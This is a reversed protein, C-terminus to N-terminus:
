TAYPTPWPRRRSAPSDARCTNPSCARNSRPKGGGRRAPPRPQPWSTTRSKLAEGMSRLRATLQEQTDVFNRNVSYLDAYSRRLRRKQRLVITLFVATVVAVVAVATMATRQQRITQLRQQERAKLDSIERTTKGVEYTFLSNRAADFKRTDYISDMIDLYRSKYMNSKVVDGKNEYFESLNKLTTAFTHQLNYRRAAADCLNMYKLASDPMGLKNYASYIEQYAFCEYKHEIRKGVAYRALEKLRAVAPAADGENIQILSLTYGSMYVDEPDATDKTRESLKYYKRANPLDKMFTYIGAMNVLIDHETVRDPMKRCLEYAKRYYDMGKEWDLFMCYVNGIYNYLSAAHKPKACQESVKVGNIFEDLAEVYDGRGYYVKGAKRRADACLNKADDDMDDAFRGYVVAYLVLAEGQKGEAAYKDAMGLVKDSPMGDAKRALWTYQTKDASRVAVPPVLLLM